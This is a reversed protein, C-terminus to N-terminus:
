KKHAEPDLKLCTREKAPPVAPASFNDWITILLAKSPSESCFKSSKSFIEMSQVGAIRWKNVTELIM